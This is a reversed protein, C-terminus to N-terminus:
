LEGADELLSSTWDEPARIQKVAAWLVGGSGPVTPLSIVTTRYCKDRNRYPKKGRQPKIM